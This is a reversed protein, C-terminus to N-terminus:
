KFCASVRWKAVPANARRASFHAPARAYVCPRGAGDRIAARNGCGFFCSAASISASALGASPSIPLESHGYFIDNRMFTALLFRHAPEDFGIARAIDFPEQIRRDRQGAAVGGYTCVLTTPVNIWILCSHRHLLLRDAPAPPRANARRM